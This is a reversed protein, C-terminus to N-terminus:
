EEDNIKKRILEQQKDGYTNLPQLMVIDLPQTVLSEISKVFDKDKYFPKIKSFIPVGDFSNKHELINKAISYLLETQTQDAGGCWDFMFFDEGVYGARVRYGFIVPHIGMEIKGDDSVLREFLHTELNDEAKKM